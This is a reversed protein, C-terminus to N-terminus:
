QSASPPPPTREVLLISPGADGGAANEGATWSFLFHVNDHVATIPWCQVRFLEVVCPTLASDVPSASSWALTFPPLTPNLNVVRADSLPIPKSGRPSESTRRSQPRFTDCLTTSRPANARQARGQKLQLLCHLMIFQSHGLDSSKLARAICHRLVELQIWTRYPDWRPSRQARYPDIEM